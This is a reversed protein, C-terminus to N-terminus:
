KPFAAVPITFTLLPHVLPVHTPALPVSQFTDAFQHPSSTGVAAVSTIIEDPPLWGLIPEAPPNQWM